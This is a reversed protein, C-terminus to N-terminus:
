CRHNPHLRACGIVSKIMITSMIRRPRRRVVLDPDLALAHALFSDVTVTGNGKVPQGAGSAIM